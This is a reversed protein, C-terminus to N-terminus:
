DALRGRLFEIFGSVQRPLYQRSPYVLQLETNKNDSTQFGLVFDDLITLLNGAALDQKIDWISKYAIGAGSLAWQRIIAGDSSILAPTIRINLSELESRFRWENLPEGNREMVLCQHQELDKPHEPLGHTELYNPSAVLVRHNEALHRVVLNSDPLNGFRVGLDFGYETLNIVGDSLHLYPTVNPHQKVFESLAPAVYQRGFDSSATIRLHGSLSEADQQFVAEASEVEALVRECAQYFNQGTNTLSIKRTTRNLLRTNYRRELTNIRATMSAPSLGIQRGAAALGGAKVVRVFLGMDDIKSM